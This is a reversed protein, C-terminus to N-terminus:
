DTDMSDNDSDNDSEGDWPVEQQQGESAQEPPIVFKAPWVDLPLLEFWVRKEESRPFMCTHHGLSDVGVTQYDPLGDATFEMEYFRTLVSHRTGSARTSHVVCEINERGNPYRVKFFIQIQAPLKGHGEWHVYVWDNWPGDGKFNPHARFTTGNRKHETFVDFTVTFVNDERAQQEIELYNALHDTLLKDLSAINRSRTIWNQEVDCHWNGNADIHSTFTLRVKTSGKSNDSVNTVNDNEETALSHVLVNPRTFDAQWAETQVSVLDLILNDTYREAVGMDFKFRDHRVTKSPKKAHVIHHHETPGTNTNSPSGFRTIDHAMHKIEHVKTIDWGQGKTRPALKKLSRMMQKLAEEAEQEGNESTSPWYSDQSAWEVFTLLMEVAQMLNQWGNVKFRTVVRQRGAATVLIQLLTKLINYKDEATTNTIKTIGDKFRLRKFQKEGHHRPMSALWRAINDIYKCTKAKFKNLFTNELFHKITGNKTAHLTETNVASCIGYPCNGFSLGFFANRCNHLYLQNLREASGSDYANLCEAMEVRRCPIDPNGCEEAVADCTRCIRTASSGYFIRRCCLEDGGQADALIPGIPVFLKVRKQKDGLKLNFNCLSNPKQAQKLSGLIIELQAHTNRCEQGSTGPGRNSKVHPHAIFGLPRWARSSNRTTRNFIALTFFVPHSSYEARESISTKDTSIVIPCCFQKDPDTIMTSCAHGYWSGTLIESRNSKELPYPHFPNEPNVVLNQNQNLVPDDLLSTLHAEFDFHIVQVANQHGELFITNQRPCLSTLGFVSELFGVQTDYKSRDPVFTYGKSQAHSAWDMIRQFSDLPAGIDRLICLLAIEIQQHDNFPKRAPKFHQWDPVSSNESESGVQEDEMPPFPDEGQHVPQCVQQNSGIPFHSDIMSQQLMPGYRALCSSQTIHKMLGAQTPFSKPCGQCDFKGQANQAKFNKSM